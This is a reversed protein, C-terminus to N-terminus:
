ARVLSQEALDQELAEGGCRTKLDAKGKWGPEVLMKWTSPTAQMVTIEFDGLMKCLQYGDAAAERGALVCCAGVTLPLYLELAAIDFSITTVELLRDQQALCPRRLM